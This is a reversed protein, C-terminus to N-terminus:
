SRLVILALYFSTAPHNDSTSLRVTMTRADRNSLDASAAFAACM